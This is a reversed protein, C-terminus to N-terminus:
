GIKPCRDRLLALHASCVNSLSHLRRVKKWQRSKLIKEWMLSIKEEARLDRKRYM